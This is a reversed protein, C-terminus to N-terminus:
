HNYLDDKSKNNHIINLYYQSTLSGQQRLQFNFVAKTLQLLDLAFLYKMKPPKQLVSYVTNM